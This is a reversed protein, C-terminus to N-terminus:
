NKSGQKAEWDSKAGNVQAMKRDLKKKDVALLKANKAKNTSFNKALERYPKKVLMSPATVTVNLIKWWSRGSLIKKKAENKLEETTEDQCYQLIEECEIECDEFEGRKFHIEARKKMAEVNRNDAKIAETFCDFAENLKGSAFLALGNQLHLSFFLLIFRISRFLADRQLHSM